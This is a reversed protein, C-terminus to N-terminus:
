GDPERSKKWCVWHRSECLNRTGCSVCPGTTYDTAPRPAAKAAPEKPRILEPLEGKKKYQLCNTCSALPCSLCLEIQEKTDGTDRRWHGVLGHKERDM